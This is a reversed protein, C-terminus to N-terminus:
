GGIKLELASARTPGPYPARGKLMGWLIRNSTEEDAVDEIGLDLKASERAERTGRPNMEDLSWGAPLAAYPRLDPADAWIDRLPRGFYDFQSMSELGLIEEITRLVDTTNAFRHITGPKNYASVVFLPSRHSDVHDPGNQADDELVFVVTNRWFPSKSLAEIIRGLALDNDAFAARPTPRGAMGYSTHDNPLRITELAPLDNKAIFQQFEALWVDARHQDKISLDFPPYDPNTHTRLFPKNGRYGAPLSDSATRGAPVVFEGYNRYTIGKKEALNWLYGSAPEAVDDDPIRNRNLGEYDYTRGRSPMSYHSPVTKELYDTAYAATSWNHGDPSVEANVFFRDFLGFRDALAHHNPSLAKGFFVNSSDGDGKPDDGLIQDYTRNEKIIYIVHEFPPYRHQRPSPGWGNAAAVRGSYRLLADPTLESLRLRMVGGELLNLTYKENRGIAPNPGGSNPVSGYGKGSVAILADGVVLVGCPYWGTPIRGRLSDTGTAPMGSTAASLDFVAVSNADAEAVFLRAGDPSLALANPTAGEAPGAPPPDLLRAVINRTKTDVVAVHDTSGSAVFLRTADRNLMMTSPHRAVHIAGADRLRGNGAPSFVSVTNGGWASVYVTGAADAVVDYPYREVGFRQVVAGSQVDIVALSDAINEAVYLMRGDPSVALGAPYRTGTARRKIALVLSDRLAARGNAWDYRYVVDQNGGSSYLTRRDPSFALGVFASPQEVEQIVRGNSADIVQIGQKAYGSLSLVVRDGEPSLRMTLPMAGVRAM